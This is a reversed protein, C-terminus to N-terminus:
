KPPETNALKVRAEAIQSDAMIAVSKYLQKTIAPRSPNCSSVNAWSLTCRTLSAPVIITSRVGAFSTPRLQCTLPAIPLLNHAM